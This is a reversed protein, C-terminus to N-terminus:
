WGNSKVPNLSVDCIYSSSCRSYCQTVCRQMTRWHREPSSTCDTLAGLELWSNAYSHRCVQQQQPSITACSNDVVCRKTEPLIVASTCDVRYPLMAVPHHFESWSQVFCSLLYKVAFRTSWIPGHKGKRWMQLDTTFYITYRESSCSMYLYFM